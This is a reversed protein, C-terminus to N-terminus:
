HRDYEKGKVSRKFCRRSPSLDSHITAVRGRKTYFKMKLYVSSPAATLEALTSRGLICNYLSPCDIVLFRVKVQRSVTEERFSVFLEM